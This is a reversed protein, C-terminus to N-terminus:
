SIEASTAQDSFALRAYQEPRSVRMRRAMGYGAAAVALVLVPLIMVMKSTSGSLLPLNVISLVLAGGLGLASGLPAVVRRFFGVERPDSRFFGLVAVSTLCQIALIGLSAFAGAWAFLQGYPDLRLLAGLGIAAVTALTQVLGAVHPSLHVPHVAALSSHCLKEHAMSSLYRAITAHFSLVCAFVSTLLLLDAAIRAPGGLLASIVDLYFGGPNAKAVAAVNGAGYHILITWTSFAYFLAILLVAAYTARPITRKPDRAEEGFIVTAEFGIFSSVVFVLTVGLGPGFLHSFSSAAAPAAGLGERGLIAAGLAILVAVECAMCVALVWGSFTVARRGCWHVIGAAVISALWWPLNLQFLDMAAQHAFFGLLGYAGVAIAQYSALAMAATAVGAERGLGQAVYAYFGSSTAIFRSMATFGVSFLLYFAGVLLFAAPVGPGTGFAFAATSPGVVATLPAAAAVVFFVIHASGVANRRLGTSGRDVM